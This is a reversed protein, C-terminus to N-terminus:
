VRGIPALRKFELKRELLLAPLQCDLHGFRAIELGNMVLPRSQTDRDEPGLIENGAVLNKHALATRTVWIHLNM